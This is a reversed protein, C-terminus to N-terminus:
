GEGLYEFKYWFAKEIGDTYPTRVGRYMYSDRVVVWACSAVTIILILCLLIITRVLAKFYPSPQVFPRDTEPLPTLTPPILPTFLLYTSASPLITVRPM